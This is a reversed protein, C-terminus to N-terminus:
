RQTRHGRSDVTGGGLILPKSMSSRKSWSICFTDQSLDLLPDIRVRELESDFVSPRKTNSEARWSRGPAPRLGAARAYTYQCNSASICSSGRYTAVPDQLLRAATLQLTRPAMGTLLHSIGALTHSGGVVWGGVARAARLPSAAVAVQMM